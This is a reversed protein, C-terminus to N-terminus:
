TWNIGVFLVHTIFLFVWVIKLQVIFNMVEEDTVIQSVYGKKYFKKHLDVDEYERVANIDQTCSKLKFKSEKKQKKSPLKYMFWKNYYTNHVDVICYHKAVTISSAGRGLIVNASIITDREIRNDVLSTSSNSAAISSKDLCRGFLSTAKRASSVDWKLSEIDKGELWSSEHIVNDLLDDMSSLLLKRFNTM